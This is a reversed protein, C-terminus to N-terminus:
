KGARSTIVDSASDIFGGIKRLFEDERRRIDEVYDAVDLKVQIEGDNGVVDEMEMMMSKESQRTRIDM